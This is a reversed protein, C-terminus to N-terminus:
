NIITNHERNCEIKIFDIITTLKKHKNWDIPGNAWQATGSAGSGDWIGFQVHSPSNPFQFRGDKFTDSKKLTRVLKGDISWKIFEPQWDITYTHFGDTFAPSVPHIGGHVGYEIIGDFYYNSQVNKTDKGVMEWDIEDGNDSMTIFATVCGGVGNIKMRATIKGFHMKRTSNLSVGAGLNKNFPGDPGKQRNMNAPKLLSAFLQGNKVEYSNRSGSLNIWNASSPNKNYKNFEVIRNTNFDDTFSRCVNKGKSPAASVGNLLLVAVLCALSKKIFNIM